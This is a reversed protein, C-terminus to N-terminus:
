DMAKEQKIIDIRYGLANLISELKGYMPANEEIVRYLEERDCELDSGDKKRIVIDRDLANMIAKVTNFTANKRGLFDSIRQRSLGVRKALETQTIDEEIMIRKVVTAMDM